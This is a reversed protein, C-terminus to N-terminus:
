PMKRNQCVRIELVKTKERATLTRQSLLEQGFSDLIAHAPLVGGYTFPNVLHCNHLCFSPQVEDEPATHSLLFHQVHFYKSHACELM